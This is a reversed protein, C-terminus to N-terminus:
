LALSKTYLFLQLTHQRSRSLACDVNKEKVDKADFGNKAFAFKNVDKADFGEKVFM